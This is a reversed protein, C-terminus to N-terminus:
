LKFDEREQVSRFKRIFDKWIERGDEGIRSLSDGVFINTIGLSALAVASRATANKVRQDLPIKKDELHIGDFVIGHCGKLPLIRRAATALADSYMKTNIGSFMKPLLLSKRLLVAILKGYRYIEEMNQMASDPSMRFGNFLGISEMVPAGCGILEIEKGLKERIGSRIEWFVQQYYEVSTKDKNQLKGIFPVSLFDVKFVEFGMQALEVFQSVLYKRFEPNSVDFVFPWQSPKWSKESSQSFSIPLHLRNGRADKIFWDKPFNDADTENIIFPAVWIGPKIGAERIERVLKGMSPFKKRDVKMSGLGDEWGDDIIYIDVLGEAAKIEKGVTEQRIGRGFAAWSFAIVSERMLPLTNLKSLERSFALVLDAYKARDGSKANASGLFIKFNAEHESSTEEFDKIVSVVLKEGEKRYRIVEVANLGPIVGLFINDGSEINRFCVWGYSRGGKPSITEKGQGPEKFLTTRGGLSEDFPRMGVLKDGEFKSSRPTSWSHWGNTIVQYEEPNINVTFELEVTGTGCDTRFETTVISGLVLDNDRKEALRSAFFIPKEERGEGSNITVRNPLGFINEISFSTQEGCETGMSDWM